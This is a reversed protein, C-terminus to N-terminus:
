METPSRSKLTDILHRLGAPTTTLITNPADSERLRIVDAPAAAIYVCNSADPSYTSKQWVHNPM